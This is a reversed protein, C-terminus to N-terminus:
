QAPHLFRLSWWIIWMVATFLIIVAVVIFTYTRRIRYNERQASILGARGSLSYDLGDEIRDPNADANKGNFSNMTRVLEEPSISLFPPITISGQTGKLIVWKGKSQYRGDSMSRYTIETVQEWQMQKMLGAYKYRIGSGNLTVQLPFLIYKITFLLIVNALLGVAFPIGIAPSSLWLPLDGMVYEACYIISLIGWAALFGALAVRQLYTSFSQQLRTENNSLDAALRGSKGFTTTM